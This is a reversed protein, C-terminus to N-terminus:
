ASKQQERNFLNARIIRTEGLQYSGSFIRHPSQDTCHTGQAYFKADSYSSFEAQVKGDLVTLWKTSDTEKM